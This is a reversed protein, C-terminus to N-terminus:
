QAICVQDGYAFDAEIVVPWVVFFGLVGEKLLHEGEGFGVIEGKDEVDAVGEGVEESNNVVGMDFTGDNM